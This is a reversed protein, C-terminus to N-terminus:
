IAVLGSANLDSRALLLGRVVNANRAFHLPTRGDADGRTVSGCFICAILGENIM